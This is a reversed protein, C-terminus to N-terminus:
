PRRRPGPGPRRTQRRASRPPPPLPPPSPCCSSPPPRSSPRFSWHSSNIILYHTAIIRLTHLIMLASILDIIRIEVSM